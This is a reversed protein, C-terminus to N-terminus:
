KMVIKNINGNPVQYTIPIVTIPIQEVNDITEIIETVGVPPAVTVVDALRTVTTGQTPIYSSDDTAAKAGWLIVESLTTAGRFDVAYFFAQNSTVDTNVKFRKWEETITFINDSNGNHTCLQTTGIGSVTRAWISRYHNSLGGYNQPMWSIGGSIVKYANNSGDPALYGSEITLNNKTWSADSFDESYTILNESQPEVLLVKKGDEWIFSPENPQVETLVGYQNPVWKPSNRDVTFDGDGVLVEKVSVNDIKGVFGTSFSPELRFITDSLQTRIETYTGNGSRSAGTGGSNVRISGSIYNSITFVIKYTKAGLNINQYLFTSTVENGIALGGSIIWNGEKNWNANTDFGGNVVLEPGYVPEPKQSYLKGAKYGDPIMSLSSDNNILSDRVCKLSTTVGGDERVRNVYRKTPIASSGALKFGSISEVFESLADMSAFTADANDGNVIDGYDYGDGSGINVTGSYTFYFKGDKNVKGKVDKSPESFIERGSDIDILKVYFFSTKLRKLGM